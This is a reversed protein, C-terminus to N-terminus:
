GVASAVSRGSGGGRLWQGAQWTDPQGVECLLLGITQTLTKLPVRQLLLPLNWEVLAKLRRGDEEVENVCSSWSSM